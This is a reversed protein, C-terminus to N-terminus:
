TEINTWIRNLLVRIDNSSSLSDEPISWLTDKLHLWKGL